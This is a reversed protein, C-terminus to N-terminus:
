AGDRVGAVRNPEPPLNAVQEPFRETLFQAISFLTLNGVVHGNRDVTPVNRFHERKMLAVAQEVTADPPVTRPSPTMLASIPQDWTEPADVVKRVVDRDTFIGVLRGNEVVLACNRGESRMQAVVERVSMASGVLTFESLDLQSVHETQLDRELSM